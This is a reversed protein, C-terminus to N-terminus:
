STTEFIPAVGVLKSVGDLSQLKAPSEGSLPVRYIGRSKLALIRGDKPDFLPSTYGGDRTLRNVSPNPIDSVLRIDGNAVEDDGRLIHPAGSIHNQGRGGLEFIRAPYVAERYRMQLM